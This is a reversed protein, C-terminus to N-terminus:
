SFLNEIQIRTTGGLTTFFNNSLMYVKHVFIITHIYIVEPFDIFFRSCMYRQLPSISHVDAPRNGRVLLNCYKLLGGGRIEEPHRTAILSNQLHYLAGYFDGFVSEGM